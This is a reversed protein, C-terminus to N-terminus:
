KTSNGCDIYDITPLDDGQFPLDRWPTVGNGIKQKKITTAYGPEGERLVPNISEWESSPGRRLQFITKLVIEAM